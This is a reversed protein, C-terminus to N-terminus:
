NQDGKLTVMRLIVKEKLHCNLHSVKSVESFVMMEAEGFVLFEVVQRITLDKLYIEVDLHVEQVFLSFILLEAALDFTQRIELQVAEINLLNMKVM